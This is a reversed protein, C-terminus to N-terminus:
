VPECNKNRDAIKARRRSDQGKWFTPVSSKVGGVSCARGGQLNGKRNRVNKGALVRGTSVTPWAKASGILNKRVGGGRWFDLFPSKGKWPVEKFIKKEQRVKKGRFRRLTNVRRDTDGL